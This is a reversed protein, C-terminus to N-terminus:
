DSRIETVLDRPIVSLAIAERGPNVPTRATVRFRGQEEVPVDALVGFEYVEESVLLQEAWLSLVTGNSLTMRWRTLENVICM